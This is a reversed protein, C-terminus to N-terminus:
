HDYYFVVHWKAKNQLYRSSGQHHCDCYFGSMSILLIQVHKSQTSCPSIWRGRSIIHCLRVSSGCFLIFTVLLSFFLSSFFIKEGPTELKLMFNFYFRFHIKKLCGKNMFHPIYAYLYCIHMVVFIVQINICSTIFVYLLLIPGLGRGYCVSVVM